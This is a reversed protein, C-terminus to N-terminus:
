EEDLEVEIALGFHDSLVPTEKGDFVVKSSAVKLEKSLFAHDVKLAQQNNAWGDIDALITYEGLTRSAVKHSDVLNLPSNVIMQYGEQDTPNNFDGMLILPNHHSQLHNELIQWEGEFGKGFWSLHLSVVTVARGNVKTTGLLVRRTHYDTEDDVDSVLLEQVDIPTKSLLAVGEHYRDYGIHNYAWSWHYPKGKQALKKALLYAYHDEHIAPASSLRQYDAPEIIAPTTMLQNIEQLCVIDYDEELIHEALQELKEEPYKEMWSHTNLTVLKM